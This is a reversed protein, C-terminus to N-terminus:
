EKDFLSYIHRTSNHLAVSRSDEACVLRSLLTTTEKTYYRKFGKRGGQFQFDSPVKKNESVELMYRNKGVSVYSVKCNLLQKQKALFADLEKLTEAVERSAEDYDVDIGESPIIYGKKKAEEHNFADDFYNLARSIDPFHGLKEKYSTCQKLLHSKFNEVHPKFLSVIESTQKFGELASLFDNIKKKNYTDIEYFIARTEPHLKSRNFGYTHIKSLHRELDPLKKLIAVALEVVDPIQVLDDVANLRDLIQDPNCLPSCLWNRFLRKGFSTSCYDMTGLLTGEANDSSMLPVIDLNELTLGDLIQTPVLSVIQVLLEEAITIMSENRSPVRGELACTGKRSCSSQLCNCVYIGIIYTPGRGVKLHELGTVLLPQLKEGDMFLVGEITLAADTM